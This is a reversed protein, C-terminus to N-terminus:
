RCLDRVSTRAHPACRALVPGVLIANAVGLARDGDVHSFRPTSLPQEVVNDPFSLPPDPYIVPQPLVCEHRPIPTATPVYSDPDIRMDVHVHTTRGPVILVGDRTAEMDPYFFILQYAGAPLSTIRYEGTDDTLEARIGHLSPSTATVTVGVMPDGNKNLVVGRAVGIDAAEDAYAAVIPTPLALLTTRRTTTACAVTFSVIIALSARCSRARNM